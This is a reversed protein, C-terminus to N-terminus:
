QYDWITLCIDFLLFPYLVPMLEAKKFRPIVDFFYPIESISIHSSLHPVTNQYFSGKLIHNFKHILVSNGVFGMRAPICLVVQEPKLKKILDDLLIWIRCKAHLFCNSYSCRDDSQIILMQINCTPHINKSCFKAPIRHNRLILTTVNVFKIMQDVYIAKPYDCEFIIVNTNKIEVSTPKNKPKLNIINYSKKLETKKYQFHLIWNQDM